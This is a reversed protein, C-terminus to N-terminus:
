QEHRLNSGRAANNSLLGLLVVFLGGLGQRCLM